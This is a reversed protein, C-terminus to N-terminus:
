PAREGTGEARYLWAPIQRADFSPYSILEVDTLEGDGFGGGIWSETVPRSTGGDLDVVYVEPPRRPGSLIVAARSGDSSLALPPQFGTLHPRAGAPLDPAPLDRGSELDRVKLREYGDENVLWPLLSGDTWAAVEESGHQQ